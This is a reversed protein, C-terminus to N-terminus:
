RYTWLEPLTLHPIANFYDLTRRESSFVIGTLSANRIRWNLEMAMEPPAKTALQVAISIPGGSTFVAVRRGSGQREMIRALGHEVRTRFALWSETEASILEGSVWKMVLAEFLHQFTRHRDRPEVSRRDAEILQRIHEDREALEPGFRKVIGHGDYEDLEEIMVPEPWPLGGETMRAGVEVATDIQRIRPGTYVEDFHTNQSVWYDGLYRSQERGIETLRDYDAGFADAKGHRILTLDSMPEVEFLFQYLGPVYGALRGLWETDNETRRDVLLLQDLYRDSILM